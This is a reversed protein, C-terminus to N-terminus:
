TQETDLITTLSSLMKNILKQLNKVTSTTGRRTIDRGNPLFLLQLFMRNIPLNSFAQVFAILILINQLLVTSHPSSVYRNQPPM